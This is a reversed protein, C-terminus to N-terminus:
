VTKGREPTKRRRAKQAWEIFERVVGNEGIEARRKMFRTLDAPKLFAFAVSHQVAEYKGKARLRYFRLRGREYRWLEPVGIKAFVPMRPVSTNTVDIEIVLDPPPDTEPEYTEKCRVQAEHAVYYAEDPQLGRGGKAARLTTSGVSQIPIDLALAFAEIMRAIM